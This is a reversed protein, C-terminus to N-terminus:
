RRGNVVFGISFAKFQIFNFIVQWMLMLVVV